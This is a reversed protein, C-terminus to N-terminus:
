AKSKTKIREIVNAVQDQFKEVDRDEIESAVQELDESLRHLDASLNIMAEFLAESNELWLQETTKKDM